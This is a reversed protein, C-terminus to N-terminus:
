ERPDLFRKVFGDFYGQTVVFQATALRLPLVDASMIASRSRREHFVLDVPDGISFRLERGDSGPLRGPGIVRDPNEISRVSSIFGLIGALRM